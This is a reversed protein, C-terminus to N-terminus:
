ASIFCRTPLYVLIVEKGLTLYGTRVVILSSMSDGKDDEYAHPLIDSLIDHLSSDM